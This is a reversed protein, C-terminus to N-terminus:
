QESPLIRASVLIYDSNFSTLNISLDIQETYKINVVKKQTQVFTSLCILFFNYYM